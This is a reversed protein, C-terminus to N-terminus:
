PAASPGRGSPCGSERGTVTAEITAATITEARERGVIPTLRRALADLAGTQLRWFREISPRAALDAPAAVDGAWEELLLRRADIGEANPTKSDIEHHLAMAGLTRATERDGTVEAYLARLAEVHQTRHEEIARGVAARQEPTLAVVRDPDITAGRSIHKPLAWKFTCARALAQREDATLPFVKNRPPLASALDDPVASGDHAEGRLSRTRAGGAGLTVALAKGPDRELRMPVSGPILRSWEGAALRARGADTRVEVAGELVEVLSSRQGARGQLSVRFCTGTVLVDGAPTAVLLGGGRDVRYFVEGQRQDIRLRGGEDQWGIDAQPELVATVRDGIALTERREALIDSARGQGAERRALAFVLVVLAVALASSAAWFLQPRKRRAPLAVPAAAKDAAGLVRQAFDAPPAPYPLLRDILDEAARQKDTM